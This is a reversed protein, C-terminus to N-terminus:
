VRASVIWAAAPTNVIGNITFPELSDTIARTVASKQSEDAQMMVAAGPGMRTFYEVADALPGLNMTVDVEKASPTEFGSALLIEEIRGPSALSFPGPAGPAPPPVAPPLVSFIAQTPINMWANEELTRWCLFELRGTPKMSKRLNIFATVPDSFFMVGFRSLILDYHERAFNLRAADGELFDLNQFGNGRKRAINIIPPSIDVGTVRGSPGVRVAMEISNVGGGCGVDLVTEGERVSANELLIANFIELTSETADM